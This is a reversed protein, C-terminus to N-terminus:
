KSPVPKTTSFYRCPQVRTFTTPRGHQKSIRCSPSLRRPHKDSITENKIQVAIKKTMKSVKNATDHDYRSFKKILRYSQYDFANSFLKKVPRIVTLRPAESLQDVRHNYNSRYTEQRFEGIHLTQAKRPSYHDSSSRASAM